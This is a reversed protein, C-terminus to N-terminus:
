EAKHPSYSRMASDCAAIANSHRSMEQEAKHVIARLGEHFHAESFSQAQLRLEALIFDSERAEFAKIARALGEATEEQYFVATKETMSDLVGGKGLAIVPCGSAIAEVPVIGFDEIGPFLLARGRRYHDALEKDDIPGLMEVDAGLSKALSQLKEFEPGKGVIKLQRGLLHCARIADDVRKYPVLASVVLYWKEPVRQLAFFRDVAVPPPLVSCERRYIRRVREAVYTSNAIFCDVRNATHVDYIRLLRAMPWFFFKSLFWGYRKAGFYEEFLDWVYRIPTHIYCIHLAGNKRSRVMSKAVAHSTSLILRNADARHLEAFFPFLPLYNRYKQAAFPLHQLLSTFIAHEEIRKSVSGPVHLLTWIPAEPYLKCIAELVKEGGRQGTLWDHVLAVDVKSRKVM